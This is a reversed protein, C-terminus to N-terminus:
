ATIGCNADDSICAIAFNARDYWRLTVGLVGVAYLGWMEQHFNDGIGILTMTFFTQDFCRSSAFSLPRDPPLSSPCICSKLLYGQRAYLESARRVHMPQFELLCEYLWPKHTAHEKKGLFYHRWSM